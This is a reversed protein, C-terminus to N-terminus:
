KLLEPNEYINGIVEIPNKNPLQGQWVGVSDRIGKALNPEDVVVGIIEGSSALCRVIDGNYIEKDNKDKRGTYFEVDLTQVEGKHTVQMVFFNGTPIDEGENGFRNTSTTFSIEATEYSLWVKHHSCWARFKIERM